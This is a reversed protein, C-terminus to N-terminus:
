KLQSIFTSEIRKRRTLRKLTMRQAELARLVRIDLLVLARKTPDLQAAGYDVPLNGLTQRLWDYGDYVMLQLDLLVLEISCEGVYDVLVLRGILLQPALELAQIRINFDVVVVVVVFVLCRCRAMGARGGVDDGHEANSRNLLLFLVGTYVTQWGIRDISALLRGRCHRALRHAEHQGVLARGLSALVLEHVLELLELVAEALELVLVLVALRAQALDDVRELALEVHVLVLVALLIQFLELGLDLVKLLEQAVLTDGHLVLVFLQEGDEDFVVAGDGREVVREDLLQAQLELLALDLAVQDALVKDAQRVVGDARQGVDVVHRM